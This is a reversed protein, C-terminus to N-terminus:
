GISSSQTPADPDPAPGVGSMPGQKLGKAVIRNIDVLPAVTAEKRGVKGTHGFVWISLSVIRAKLDKSLPNDPDACDAALSTWVRVNRLMAEHIDRFNESGEAAEMEYAVSLLLDHEVQPASVTSQAVSKYASVGKM